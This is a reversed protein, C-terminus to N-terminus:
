PAQEGKDPKVPAKTCRGELVASLFMGTPGSINDVDVHLTYVGPQTLPWNAFNIRRNGNTFCYGGAATCAVPGGGVPGTLFVKEDNDGAVALGKLVIAQPITCAEVRFQLTYHYTAGNGGSGTANSSVWRAGNTLNAWAANVPSVAVVPQGNVRWPVGPVTSLDLTNERGLCQCCGLTPMREIATAAPLDARPPAVERAQARASPAPTPSRGAVAALAAALLTRLFVVALSQPSSSM